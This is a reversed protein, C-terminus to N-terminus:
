ITGILGQMDGVVELGGIRGTDEFVVEGNVRLLVDVDVTITEEVILGMMNREGFMPGPLPVGVQLPRKATVILEADSGPRGYVVVKVEQNPAGSGTNTHADINVSQVRSGTYVSFNHTTNTRAHHLTIIFASLRFKSVLKPGYVPISSVIKSLIGKDSLLPVDAITLLLSSGTEKVFSGTQLWIWSKPFNIGHDKELYGEGGTVDFEHEKAGAATEFRVSGITKHYLSVVGHYCELAPLYSFPGMVTPNLTSTPFRVSDVFKVSGRVSLAKREWEQTLGAKDFRLEPHLIQRERLAKALFENTDEDSPWVLRSADLDLEMGKEHFTSKGIRISYTTRAEPSEGVGNTAELESLPYAYYLCEVTHPDRLVMVFAHPQQLTDNLVTGEPSPKPMFVGPIFVVSGEAEPLVTKYYWGEFFPGSVGHGHYQAPKRVLNFNNVSLKLNIGNLTERAAGIALLVPVLALLWISSWTSGVKKASTFKSGRAKRSPSQKVPM